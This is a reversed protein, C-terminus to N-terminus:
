VRVKRVFLISSKDHSVEQWDANKKLAAALKSNNPFLVWNIRFSKLIDEYGPDVQSVMAYKKYHEDGYFDARDDIFVQQAPLPPSQQAATWFLYGGWNDFSVGEKAKLDNSREHDFLYNLTGAPHDKTVQQEMWPKDKPDFGSTLLQLNKGFIAMLSLLIFTAVPVIHMQCIAENENFGEGVEKFKAVLAKWWGAVAVSHLEVQTLTPTTIEDVALDTELEKTSMSLPRVRALLEGIAPLVVIAFLPMHRVSQLSLFAFVLCVMLKPFTLRKKGIAQGITFVAFLIILCIPSFAGHFDPSLYEDTAKVAESSKFFYHLLYQHLQLGYPTVFSMIGCAVGVIAFDKAKSLFEKRKEGEYVAAAVLSCVFYLGIMALGVIFGPHSNVWILMYLILPLFFRAGSITGRYRDELRTSFIYVGFFTFLHPRALWHVASAFAGVITICLATVFHCGEKRLKEYILLFLVAIASCVGVALFPLGGIKVFLAMVTDSLWEYAVWPAGPKTWSFLDTQPPFGHNLVYDGTALHWGTSGDGFVFNPLSFLTVGIMALFVIDGVDPLPTQNPKVAVKSETKETTGTEALSEPENDMGSSSM